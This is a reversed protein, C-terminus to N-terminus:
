DKGRRSLLRLYRKCIAAMDWFDHATAHCSACWLISICAWGAARTDGDHIMGIMSVTAFLYFAWYPIDHWRSRVDVVLPATDAVTDPIRDSM